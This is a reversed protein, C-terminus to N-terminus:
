KVEPRYAKEGTLINIVDHPNEFNARIEFNMEAQVDRDLMNDFSWLAAIGVKRDDYEQVIAGSRKNVIAFKSPILATRVLDRDYRGAEIIDYTTEMKTEETNNTGM